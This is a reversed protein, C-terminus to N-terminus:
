EVGSRWDAGTEEEVWWENGAALGCSDAACHSQLRGGVWPRGPSIIKLERRISFTPVSCCWYNPGPQEESWVHPAGWDTLIEINSICFTFINRWIPTSNLELFTSVWVRWHANLWKLIILTFLFYQSCIDFMETYISFKFQIIDHFIIFM